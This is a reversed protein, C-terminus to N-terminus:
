GVIYHPDWDWDWDVLNNFGKWSILFGSQVSDLQKLFSSSATFAEVYGVEELEELRGTEWDRWPQPPSRSVRLRFQSVGQLLILLDSPLLILSMVRM